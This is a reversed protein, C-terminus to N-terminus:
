QAYYEERNANCTACIGMRPTLWTVEDREVVRNCQVCQWVPCDELVAAVGTWQGVQEGSMIDVAANITEVADWAWDMLAREFETM